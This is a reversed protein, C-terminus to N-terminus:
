TVASDTKPMTKQRNTRILLLRLGSGVASLVVPWTQSPSMRSALLGRGRQHIIRKRTVTAKLM